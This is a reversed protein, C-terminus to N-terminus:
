LSILARQHYELIAISPEMDLEAKLVKKCTEFQKVTAEPRKLHLYAKMLALHGEQCCADVELLRNAYEVVERWREQECLAAVLRRLVDLILQECHEKQGIAWELYCNELYPGRYLQVAKQWSEITENTVTEPAVCLKLLENLDHWIPLSDNLSLRGKDRVIYELDQPWPTPKLVKRIRSFSVNLSVKGAEGDEPWFEDVLRESSIPRPSGALRALLFRQKWSKFQSDPIREEGRWLEFGGLTYIRLLPPLLEESKTKLAAESAQRIEPAPHSTLSQLFELAVPNSCGSLAEILCVKAPTELKPDQLSEIVRSPTDLGLRTLMRQITPQPSSQQLRVLSPILWWANDAVEFRYEGAMLLELSKELAVQDQLMGYASMAVSAKAAMTPQGLEAALRRANELLATSERIFGTQHMYLGAELSCAAYLLPNLQRALNVGEQASSRCQEPDGTSLRMLGMLAEVQEKSPQGDGSALQKFTERAQDDDNSQEQTRALQLLIRRQRTAERSSETDRQIRSTGLAEKARAVAEKLTPDHDLSIQDRAAQTVRAVMTMEEPALEQSRLEELHGLLDSPLSSGLLEAILASGSARRDNSATHMCADVLVLRRAQSGLEPSLGMERAVGEALQAQAIVEKGGSRPVSLLWSELSWHTVKQLNQERLWRQKRTRHNELQRAVALLFEDLRFPKKLFDGVGLRVARISDAEASFGTIVLTAIMPQQQQLHELTDLGSMGAMRIDSIVLDIQQQHALEIAERGAGCSLVEYGENELALALDERFSDDDEVVLIREQSRLYDQMPLAM